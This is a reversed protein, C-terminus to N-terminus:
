WIVPKKRQSNRIVEYGARLKHLLDRSDQVALLHRLLRRPHLYQNRYAKRRLGAIKKLPIGSPVHVPVPAGMAVDEWITEALQGTEVCHRFLDSGPLPLPLSFDAYTADLKRAMRLTENMEALSETPHGLMFFAMTEVGFERCYRFSEYIDAEDLNKMVIENRVRNSGAEIGFRINVCGAQKMIRVTKRDLRDARTECGWNLRIGMSLLGECIRQTRKRDATFTPDHLDIYKYGQRFVQAFDELVRGVAVPRYPRHSPLACFNCRNVCGRATILNTMRSGSAPSYYPDIPLLDRAPLPLDDLDFEIAPKRVLLEGNDLHVLGPIDPPTKGHGLAQILALFSREGDGRIAYDANLFPLSEPRHTIHPGGLVLPVSFIERASGCFSRVWRLNFSNTYIGILDPSLERIRRLTERESFDLANADLIRVEINERRLTAALYALGLPPYRQPRIRVSKGSRDVMELPPHVLVVNCM